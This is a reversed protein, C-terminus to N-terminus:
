ETQIESIINQKLETVVTSKNPKLNYNQHWCMYYLQRACATSYQLLHHSVQVPWTVERRSPIFCVISEYLKMKYKGVYDEKKKESLLIM